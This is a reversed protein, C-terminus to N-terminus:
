KILRDYELTLCDNIQKLFKSNNVKEENSLTNKKQFLALTSTMTIYKLNYSSDMFESIVRTPGFYSCVDHIAIYGNEVVNDYFLEFDKKVAEYKHLGDIFIFEIKDQFDLGVIQSKEKIHTVYEFINNIKLNKIFEDYKGNPIDKTTLFPDISYIKNKFGKKIAAAVLVLMSRGCWSGIEVISGKDSLSNVTDFLVNIEDQSLWGEILKANELIREVSLLEKNM